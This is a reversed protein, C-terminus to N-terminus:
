LGKSLGRGVDHAAPEARGYADTDPTRATNYGSSMCGAVLATLGLVLVLSKLGQMADESHSRGHLYTSAAYIFIAADCEEGPAVAFPVKRTTEQEM